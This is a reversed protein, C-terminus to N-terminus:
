VFEFSDIKIDKEIDLIRYYKFVPHIHGTLDILRENNIFELMQTSVEVVTNNTTKFATRDDSGFIKIIYPRTETDKAKIVLNQKSNRNVVEIHHGKIEGNNKYFTKPNSILEPTPTAPTTYIPSVTVPIPNPYHNHNLVTREINKAGTTAKFKRRALVIESTSKIAHGDKFRNQQNYYLNKLKANKLKDASSTM